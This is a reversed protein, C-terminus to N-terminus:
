DDVIDEDCDDSAELEKKAKHKAILPKVIKKYTITGVLLALGIGVAVVFAKNSNTEIDEVTEFVEENNMIEEEM